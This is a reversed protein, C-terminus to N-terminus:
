SHDLSVARPLITLQSFFSAKYEVSPHLGSSIKNGFRHFSHIAEQADHPSKDIGVEESRDSISELIDHLSRDGANNFIDSNSLDILSAVRKSNEAQSSKRITMDLLHFIIDVPLVLLV